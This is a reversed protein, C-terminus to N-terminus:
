PNRLQAHTFCSWQSEPDLRYTNEDAQWHYGRIEVANETFRIDNFANPEARIRSSTATGAHVTLISSGLRSNWSVHRHGTLLLQIKDDLFSSLAMDARGVASGAEIEEPLVFPHHAVVVKWRSSNNRFFRAITNLQEQNIRGNSITLSRSTDVGILALEKSVFEPFRDHGFHNRFNRRPDIFRRWINWLAIDHNGPIVVRPCPHLSEIFRAADSFQAARARQTLDGSVVILDPAINEVTRRLPELTRPNLAGFHLDSIQVLTLM